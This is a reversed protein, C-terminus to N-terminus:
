EPNEVSLITAVRFAPFCLSYRPRRLQSEDENDDFVPKSMIKKIKEFKKIEAESASNELLLKENTSNCNQSTDADM